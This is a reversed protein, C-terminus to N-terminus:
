VRPAWVGDLGEGYAQQTPLSPEWGGLMGALAGSVLPIGDRIYWGWGGDSQM